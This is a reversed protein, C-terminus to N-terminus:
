FRLERGYKDKVLKKFFAKTLKKPCAVVKIRESGLTLFNDKHEVTRLWFPCVGDVAESNDECSPRPQAVLFGTDDKALLVWYASTTVIDKQWWHFAPEVYEYRFCTMDPMSSILVAGKELVTAGLATVSLLLAIIAMKSTARM